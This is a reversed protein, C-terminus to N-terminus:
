YGTNQKLNPNAVLDSQPIPFINFKNDVGQGGKIGGKWQWLNTGSTYQGYRVLDTRRHCEWYLERSREDLIDQLTLKSLNHSTNGFARQRLINVYTEAKAATGGGGRLHAEAYVLYMESLRFLPFDTDCFGENFNSGYAGTSTVNRFKAVGLGDTFVQINDVSPNEGFFLARKDTGEFRETFQMRARNGSWGSLGGMGYYEQFNIGPVDDRTTVFSANIVYTLGGYNQTRKGDYNISLIVENNNENNNALFLDQYNQMPTYGGETIVKEAYQLADTFRATGTYVEANLYLRALLAWCAGKDARGYENQRPDILIDKLALLESEVYDFIEQRSKQVPTYKGIPTNEDVFPPNGFADMLVWYQFARIFRAETKFTRIIDADTSSFGRSSLEKDSSERIFENAVTIQFLSRYYLGSTFTNNSSWTMTNLEPVGDDQWTCIAEDTTLVQLNFYARLFDSNSADGSIDGFISGGFNGSLAYSGYVKALVNKYGEVSDYVRDPFLDNTPYRNLDDLCSTTIFISAIVAFLKIYISHKM